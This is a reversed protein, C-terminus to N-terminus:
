ANDPHAGPAPGRQIALQASSQTGGNAKRERAVKTNRVHGYEIVKLGNKLEAYAEPKRTYLPSQYVIATAACLLDTRDLPSDPRAISYRAEMELKQYVDLITLDFQVPTTWTWAKPTPRDVFRSGYADQSHLVLAVDMALGTSIFIADGEKFMVRDMGTALVSFDITVPRATALDVTGPFEQVNAATHPELELNLLGSSHRTVSIIPDFFQQTFPAVLYGTAPRMVVFEPAGNDDLATLATFRAFAPNSAFDVVSKSPNGLATVNADRYPDLRPLGAKMFAKHKPATTFDKYLDM